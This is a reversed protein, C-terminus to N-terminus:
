CRGEVISLSVTGSLLVLRGTRSGTLPQQIAEPRCSRATMCCAIPHTRNRYAIGKPARVQFEAADAAMDRYAKTVPEQVKQMDKDGISRMGQDRQVLAAKGVQWCM